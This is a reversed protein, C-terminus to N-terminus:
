DGFIVSDSNNKNLNDIFEKLILPFLVLIVAKFMNIKPKEGMVSM